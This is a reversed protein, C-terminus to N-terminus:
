SKAEELSLRLLMGLYDHLAAAQKWSLRAEITARYSRKDEGRVSETSLELWVGPHVARIAADDCYGLSYGVVSLTKGGNEDDRGVLNTSGSECTHVSLDVRGAAAYNEFETNV